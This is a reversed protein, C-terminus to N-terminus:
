WPAGRPFTVDHIEIEVVLLTLQLLTDLAQEGVGVAIKGLAHAVHLLRLAVLRCEPLLIGVQAQQAHRKGLFVAAQALAEGLGHDDGFRESPCQGDLGIHRGHHEAAAHQAMGAVGIEQLLQHRSDDFALQGQRQRMLLALGAEIKGIDGRRRARVALAAIRDFALFCDHKGAVAGVLQDHRRADGTTAGVAVADPQEQDIGLGVAHRPAAIWRLVPLPCRIHRQRGDADSRFRHDCTGVLSKSDQLVRHVLCNGSQGGLRRARHGRQMLEGDIIELRALLEADGDAGELHQLVLRDVHQGRQLFCAAHGVVGRHHRGLGVGLFALLRDVCGLHLGAFRRPEHALRRDLQVAADAHGHFVLGAVVELPEGHDVHREAVAVVM